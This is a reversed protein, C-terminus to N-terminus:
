SARLRNAFRGEKLPSRSQPSPPSFFFFVQTMIVERWRERGGEGHQCFSPFSSFYFGLCSREFMRPRLFRSCGTAFGLCLNKLFIKFFIFIPILYISHFSSGSLLKQKKAEQFDM